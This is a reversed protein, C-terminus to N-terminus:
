TVDDEGTRRIERMRRVQSMRSIPEIDGIESAIAVHICKYLETANALGEAAHAGM